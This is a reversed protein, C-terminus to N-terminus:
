GANIGTAVVLESGENSDRVTYVFQRKHSFFFHFYFLIPSLFIIIM